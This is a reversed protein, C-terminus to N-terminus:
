KQRKKMIKPRKKGIKGRKQRKKQIKFMKKGTNRFQQGKQKNIGTYEWSKQMKSKKDIYKVNKELNKSM